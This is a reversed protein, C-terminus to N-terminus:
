PEHALGALGSDLLELSGAKQAEFLTVVQSWLRELLAIACRAASANSGLLFRRPKYRGDPPKIKGITRHYQGDKRQSLKTKAYASIPAPLPVQM